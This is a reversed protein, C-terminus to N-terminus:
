IFTKLTRTLFTQRLEPLSPANKDRDSLIPSVTPWDLHLDPDNWLCGLDDDQDWYETLGDMYTTTMPFYFGHAVGMPIMITEPQTDSLTLFIGSDFTPSHPRLDYLGLLMNGEIISLFDIHSLHVHVGRLSNFQSTVLNWQVPPPHSFWEARYFESLCGRQDFNQKLPHRIIGEPLEDKTM